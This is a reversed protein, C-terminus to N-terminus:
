DPQVAIIDVTTQPNPNVELLTLGLLVATQQRTVKITVNTTTKNTIWTNWISNNTNVVSVAVNPISAFGESPFTWTVVGSADTLLNTSYFTKVTPIIPKNLIQSLGNESNWDAQVPDIISAAAKFVSANNAALAAKGVTGADTLDNILHTHVLDAKDDLATQQATSVPKNADSTNDVNGLGISVQSVSGTTGSWSFGTGFVGTKMNFNTGDLMCFGYHNTPQPIDYTPLNTLGNGGRQIIVLGYPHVAFSKFCFSLLSLAIILCKIM